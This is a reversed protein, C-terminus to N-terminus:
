KQLAEVAEPNSMICERLANKLSSDQSALVYKILTEAMQQNFPNGGENGNTIGANVPSSAPSSSAPSLPVDSESHSCDKRAPKPPALSVGTSTFVSPSPSRSASRGQGRPSRSRSNLGLASPTTGADESREEKVVTLGPSPSRRQNPSIPKFASKGTSSLVKQDGEDDTAMITPATSPSPSKPPQPINFPKGGEQRARRIETGRPRQPMRPQQEVQPLQEEPVTPGVMVEGGNKGRARYIQSMRPRPPVKQQDLKPKPKLEPKRARPTAIPRRTPSSISDESDSSLRREWQRIKGKVERVKGGSPSVGQQQQQSSGGFSSMGTTWSSSTDREAESDSTAPSGIKQQLERLKQERRERLYAQTDIINSYEHDEIEPDSDVSM